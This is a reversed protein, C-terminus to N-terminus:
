KFIIHFRPRFARFVLMGDENKLKSYYHLGDPFKVGTADLKLNNVDTNIDLAGLAKSIVESQSDSFDGTLKVTATGSTLKIIGGIPLVAEEDEAKATDLSIALTTGTGMTLGLNVAADTDLSVVSNTGVIVNGGVVANQEGTLVADNGLTVDGSVEAKLGGTLTSGDGLVVNGTIKAQAGGTVTSNTGLSVNGTLLSTAGMSIAANDGSCSTLKLQAGDELAISNNGDRLTTNNPLVVGSALEFRGGSYITLASGSLQGKEEVRLTGGKVDTYGYYYKEYGTSGTISCRNRM